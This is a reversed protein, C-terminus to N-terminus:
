CQLGGRQFSQFISIALRKFEATNEEEDDLLLAKDLLEKTLLTLDVNENYLKNICNLLLLLTETYEKQPRREIISLLSLANSVLINIRNDKQKYKGCILLNNKIRDTFFCFVDKHLKEKQIAKTCRISLSLKELFINNM